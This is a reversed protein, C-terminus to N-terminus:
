EVAAEPVHSAALPTGGSPKLSKPLEVSKLSSCEGFADEGVIALSEPLQVSQLANCGCFAGHGIFSLSDPLVVTKFAACVCFACDGVGGAHPLAFEANSLDNYINWKFMDPEYDMIRTCAFRLQAKTTPLADSPPAARRTPPGDHVSVAELKACGFFAWQGM